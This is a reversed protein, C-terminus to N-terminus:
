IGNLSDKGLYSFHAKLANSFFIILGFVLL